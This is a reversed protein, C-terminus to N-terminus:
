HLINGMEEPYDQSYTGCSDIEVPYCTDHFKFKFGKLLKTYAVVLRSVFGASQASM